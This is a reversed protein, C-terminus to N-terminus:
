NSDFSGWVLSVSIKSTDGVVQVSGGDGMVQTYTVFGNKDKLVLYPDVTESAVTDAREDTAVILEYTTDNDKPLKLTETEVGVIHGTADYTVKSLVHLDEEATLEAENTVEVETVNTEDPTNHSLTMANNAIEVNIWHDGDVTVESNVIGSGDDAVMQLKNDNGELNQSKPTFTERTVSTIHGNEVTVNTVATFAGTGEADVVDPIDTEIERHSIEVENDTGTIVLDLGANLVLEENEEPTLDIGNSDAIASIGYTVQGRGDNAVSNITVDGYFLTDTNLEDGSPVHSWRLNGDEIIGTDSSSASYAIFMDGKQYLTGDDDIYDETLLYVDGVEVDTTPLDEYTIAGKYTMATNAAAMQEKVWERLGTNYADIDTSFDLVLDDLEWNARKLIARWDDTADRHIESVYVDDPLTLTESVVNTVHGNEFELGSIVQITEGSKLQTEPDNESVVDETEYKKHEVVITDVDSDHMRVIIDDNEEGAVIAIEDPLDNNDIISVKVGVDGASATLDYTTDKVNIVIDSTDSLEISTVNDGPILNIPDQLNEALSGAGTTSIKVGDTLAEAALSVEAAEPIIGAILDSNIILEATIDEIETDTVVGKNYQKQKLTLTYTLSTGDASEVGEDFSVEEVKITDNTDTDPNIQVWENGNYVALINEDTCYYFDNKNATAASQKLIDLNDVIQVTQNLLAMTTEDKGIYLRNSDTTLYFCGEVIKSQPLNAQLGRKFMVEAM